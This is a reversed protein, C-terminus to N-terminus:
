EQADRQHPSHSHTSQPRLEDVNPVLRPRHGVIVALMPHGMGSPGERRADPRVRGAQVQGACLQHLMCANTAVRAGAWRAERAFVAVLSSRHDRSPSREGLPLLGGTERAPRPRYGELGDHDPVQNTRVTLDSFVQGDILCGLVQNIGDDRGLVLVEPVVRAHIRQRAQPRGPGVDLLAPVALAGRGERHLDHTTERLIFLLGHAPLDSLHGHRDRQVAIQPLLTHELHVQVCRIQPLGAIQGDAAKLGSRLVVPTLGGLLQAKRLRGRQCANERCRRAVAGIHRGLQGLKPPIPHQPSHLQHAVVHVGRTSFLDRDLECRNGLGLVGAVHLRRPSPKLSM